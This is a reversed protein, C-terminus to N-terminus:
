LQFAPAPAWSRLCWSGLYGLCVTRGASQRGPLRGPSQSLRPLVQNHLCGGGAPCRPGDAAEAAAEAAAVSEQAAAAAHLISIVPVIRCLFLPLFPVILRGSPSEWALRSRPLIQLDWPGQQLRSHTPATLPTGLAGPLLAPTRSDRGLAATGNSCGGERWPHPLPDHVQSPVKWGERTLRALAWLRFM